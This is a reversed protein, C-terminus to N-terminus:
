TIALRRPPPSYPSAHCRAPISVRLCFTNSSKAAAACHQDILAVSRWRPQGDFVANGFDLRVTFLGNADTAATNTLPGGLNTGGNLADYLTFTLDYSGAQPVGNATLRGQYTFLTNQAYGPRSTMQLVMLWVPIGLIRCIKMTNM